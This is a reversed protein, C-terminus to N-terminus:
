PILSIMTKDLLIQSKQKIWNQLFVLSFNWLSHVTNRNLAAIVRKFSHEHYAEALSGIVVLTKSCASALGVRARSNRAVPGTATAFLTGEALWGWWWLLNVLIQVLEDDTLFHGLPGEAHCHVVVVLPDVVVNWDAFLFVLLGVALHM